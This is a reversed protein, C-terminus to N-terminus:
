NKKPCYAEAEAEAEAAAMSLESAWNCRMKFHAAPRTDIIFERKQGRRFLKRETEFRGSRRRRRRSVSSRHFAAFAAAAVEM